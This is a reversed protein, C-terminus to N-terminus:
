FFLGTTNYCIKYIFKFIVKFDPDVTQKKFTGLINLTGPGTDVMKARTTYRCYTLM